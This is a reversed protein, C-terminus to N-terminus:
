QLREPLIQAASVVNANEAAPCPFSFVKLLVYIM